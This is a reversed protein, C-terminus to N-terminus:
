VAYTKKYAYEQKLTELTKQLFDNYARRTISFNHLLSSTASFPLDTALMELLCQTMPGANNPFFNTTGNFEEETDILFYLMRTSFPEHCWLTASISTLMLLFYLKKM